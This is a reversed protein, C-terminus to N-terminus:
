CFDSPTPFSGSVLVKEGSVAITAVQVCDPALIPRWDLFKGRPLSVAALNNVHMGAVNAFGAQDGGVAALYITHGYASFSSVGAAWAGGGKLQNTWSRLRGTRADYAVFCHKGGLLVQGNSVLMSRANDCNGYERPAWDVLRGTKQSVAAFGLPRPVGGVHDFEGGLYLVGNGAALQDVGFGPDPRGHYTGTVSLKWPTPRGTRLDLAAIGSRAEGDIHEFAGSIYLVGAGFALDEAEYANVKWLPKGTASDFAKVCNFDVEALVAGQLAIKSPSAIAPTFSKDLRGDSRLHALHELKPHSVGGVKGFDGGVYWGGRGDSIAASLGGPIDPFDIDVAGTKADLLLVQRSAPIRPSSARKSSSSCGCVVLVFLTSLAISLAGTLKM